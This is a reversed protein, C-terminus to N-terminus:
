LISEQQVTQEIITSNINKLSVGARYLARCIADGSLLPAYGRIKLM